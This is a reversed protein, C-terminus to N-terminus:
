IKSNENKKNLLLVTLVTEIALFIFFLIFFHYKEIKLVEINTFIPTCFLYIVAIKLTTLLLFVYGLNDFYKKYVFYIIHSIMFSLSFFLLYLNKVAIIFNNIETHYFINLVFWDLLIVLLCLSILSVLFQTYKM